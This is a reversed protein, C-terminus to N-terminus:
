QRKRDRFRQWQNDVNQKSRPTTRFFPPANTELWESIMVLETRIDRARRFEFLNLSLLEDHLDCKRWLWDRVETMKAKEDRWSQEAAKIFMEPELVANLGTIFEALSSPRKAHEKILLLHVLERLVSPIRPEFAGLQVPRDSTVEDM